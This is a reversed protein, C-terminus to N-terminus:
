FRQNQFIYIIHKLRTRYGKCKIAFSISTCNYNIIQLVKFLNEIRKNCKEKNQIMKLKEVDGNSFVIYNSLKDLNEKTIM